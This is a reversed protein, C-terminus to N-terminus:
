EAQETLFPQFMLGTTTSVARVLIRSRVTGPVQSAPCPKLLKQGFSTFLDGLFRNPIWSGQHRSLGAILPDETLEEILAFASVLFNYRQQWTTNTQHKKLDKKIFTNFLQFNTNKNYNGLPFYPPQFPGLHPYEIREQRQNCSYSTSQRLPLGYSVKVDQNEHTSPCLFVLLHHVAKIM